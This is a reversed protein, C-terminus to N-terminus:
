EVALAAWSPPLNRSIEIGAFRSGTRAGVKRAWSGMRHIGEELTVPERLGPFFSRVKEHSCYADKVENREPLFNIVPQVSFEKGIVEALARVQYPRDAGVNFVRNWAEPKNWAQAMVPAVDDIYSFARSQSGDGFM